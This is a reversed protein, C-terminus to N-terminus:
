CVHEGGGWVCRHLQEIRFVFERHQLAGWFVGLLLQKEGGAMGGGIGM